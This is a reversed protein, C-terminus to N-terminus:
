SWKPVDRSRAFVSKEYEVNETNEKTMLQCVRNVSLSSKINILLIDMIYFLM